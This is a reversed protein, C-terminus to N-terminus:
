ELMRKTAIFAFDSAAIQMDFMESEPTPQIKEDFLPELESGLLSQPILQKM